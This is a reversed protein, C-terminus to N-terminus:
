LSFWYTSANSFSLSFSPNLINFVIYLYYSYTPPSFQTLFPLFPLSDNLVSFCVTPQLALLLLLLLLLLTYLLPREKIKGEQLHSGVHHCGFFLGFCTATFLFCLSYVCKLKHERFCIVSKEKYVCHPPSKLTVIHLQIFRSISATSTCDNTAVQVTKSRSLFSDAM